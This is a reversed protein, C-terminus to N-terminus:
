FSLTVGHRVAYADDPDVAAGTRNKWFDGSMLYGGEVFYVLNKDIKYVLKADVETGISKSSSAGAAPFAGAGGYIGVNAANIQKTARLIYVGLDANLDKTLNTNAGLKIYQTNALGTSGFGAASITRYEYVYTYHQDGVGLTTLFSKNKSDTATGDSDGNGYAYTLGLKLNNLMYSVGAMLAYGRYKIETSTGPFEDKGSQMEVDLGLGFGAIQTNANLGLNWLHLAGRVLGVTNWQRDDIYTVNAGLMTNKDVNYDLMLMHVDSDDNIGPNAPSETAKITALKIALEKSPEVFFLITDDGFKAHDYFLGNGPKVPMHGIKFGAPVGLLGSGKHQIWAELITLAGRKSNSHDFPQTAGTVDSGWVFSDTTNSIGGNVENSSELHVVGMTNKSVDAQLRLRVRQDYAASHDDPTTTDNFFDSNNHRYEGRVRIEGGLTIQSTGKAVVAQTESPIEAHVAFASASFGFVALLGLAVVLFRKM